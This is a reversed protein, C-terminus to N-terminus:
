YQIEKQFEESGLAGELCPAMLVEIDTQPKLQLMRGIPEKIYAPDEYVQKLAITQGDKSLAFTETLKAEQSMPWLAAGMPGSDGKFNTTEVVLKNADWRGISHGMWSPLSQDHGRGDLYIVRFSSGEFASELAVLIRNSTQAIESPGYEFRGVFNRPICISMPTKPEKMVTAMLQQMAAQGAATFPPRYAEKMEVLFLDQKDALIKHFRALQEEYSKAKADEPKGASLPAWQTVNLIIPIGEESYRTEPGWTGSFDPHTRTASPTAAVASVTGSCIALTGLSLVVGSATALRFARGAPRIKSHTHM